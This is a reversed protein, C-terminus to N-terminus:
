PSVTCYIAVGDDVCPDAKGDGDLDGLWLAEATSTAPLTLVPFRPGFAHGQSIACEVTTGLVVCLDARGDGSVDAVAGHVQDAIMGDTVVSGEVVHFAFGWPTGDSTLSRDADLGCVPGATTSMCWDAAADGDLDAPWVPAGRTPWTSYMAAPAGATACAVGGEIMGCVADGVIALSRDGPTAAGSRAFAPSWLDAAYGNGAFACLIGQASRGCADVLGDGDLDGLMLSQPEIDLPRDVADIRVSRLFGGTGQGPACWLGGAEIRCLDAKGDGTLDALQVARGHATMGLSSRRTLVPPRGLVWREDRNGGCV